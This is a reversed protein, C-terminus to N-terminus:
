VIPTLNPYPYGRSFDFTVGYLGTYPKIGYLMLTGSKKILKLHVDSLNSSIQTIKELGPTCIGIMLSGMARSITVAVSAAERFSEEGWYSVITDNGVIGLLPKRTKEKLENGVRGITMLNEMLSQQPDLMVMYPKDQDEGVMKREFVRLLQIKSESLGLMKSYELITDVDFGVTPLVLVGRSEEVFNMATLAIFPAYDTKIINEDLELQVVGGKPYGGGLIKDLNEIGTSFHTETDPLPETKKVETIQPKTEKFSRFRGDLLTFFYKPRDIEVGRLKMLEIERARRGDITKMSLMVIGDVLYDLTTRDPTESVLIINVNKSSILTELLRIAGMQESPDLDETVAEWSDVVIMPNETSMALDYIHEFSTPYKKMKADSITFSKKLAELVYEPKVVDELWPFQAFLRESTVRTSVYIGNRDEQFHKLLELSLITKGTGPNGKILLANNGQSLFDILEKPLNNTSM